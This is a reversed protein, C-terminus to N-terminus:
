SSKFMGAVRCAEVPNLGIATEDSLVFGGYGAELADFLQCVEARTPAPHRTMHELVQGALIVDGAQRLHTKIAGVQRTFRHAATAMRALGLEAGLDGRCLWLEDADEALKLADEVAEPREIKAALFVQPGIAQRYHQLELADKIYSIAYRVRPNSQTQQLIAQDQFSLAEKRYNSQSFTIGKRSSIEGGVIVQAQIFDSGWALVKLRSKADNLVLEASSNPAAQFFDAHPVPLAEATGQADLMLTVREGITLQRTPFQGLRWKSGQLDLVIPVPALGSQLFFDELRGLWAECEGLTSHSTNLRFADVGAELMARWVAEDRSAPGLTATIRYTTPDRGM